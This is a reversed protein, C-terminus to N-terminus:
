PGDLIHTLRHPHPAAAWPAARARRTRGRAQERSSAAGGEGKGQGALPSSVRLFPVLLAQLSALEGVTCCDTLNIHCTTENLQDPSQQSLWACGPRVPIAFGRGLWVSLHVNLLSPM